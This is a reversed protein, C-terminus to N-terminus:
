ISSYGGDVVLASGNLYRAEPGALFWVASAVDDVRGVDGQPIRAVAQARLEPQELRWHTM